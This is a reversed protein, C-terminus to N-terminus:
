FLRSVFGFARSIKWMEFTCVFQRYQYSRLRVQDWHCNIGLCAWSQHNKNNELDSRAIRLGIITPVILVKQRLLPWPKMEGISPPSSTKTWMESYTFCKTIRTSIKWLKRRNVANFAIVYRLSTVFNGVSDTRNWWLELFILGNVNLNCVERGVNVCFPFSWVIVISVLVVSFCRLM